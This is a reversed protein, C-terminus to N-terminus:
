NTKYTEMARLENVARKGYRQEPMRPGWALGSTLSGKGSNRSILQLFHYLGIFKGLASFSSRSKSYLREGAASLLLKYVRVVTFRGVIMPNIAAQSAFPNLSVAHM